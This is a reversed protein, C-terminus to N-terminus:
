SKPPPDFLGRRPPDPPRHLLRQQENAVAFGLAVVGPLGKDGAITVGMNMHGFSGIGMSPAAEVTLFPDVEPQTIKYAIAGVHTPAWDYLTGDAKKIVGKCTIEGEETALFMAISDTDGYKWALSQRAPDTLDMHVQYCGEGCWLMLDFFKLYEWSAQAEAVEEEGYYLTFQTPTGPATPTIKWQLDLAIMEELAHM